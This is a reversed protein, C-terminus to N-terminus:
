SRSRAKTPRSSPPTRSCTGSWRSCARRTAPSSTARRTCRWASASGSPRSTAPASTPPATCSRTCTPRRRPEDRAQRELHPHRRAPRRDADARRAREQPDARRTGRLSGPLEANRELSHLAMVVPTLPTRLEHSLIALFRDKAHSAAEAEARAKRNDVLAQVLEARSTELAQEAARAQTQDRFIKLLGIPHTGDADRMAMMVGSGWFRTGNKRRHWREDAARGDTLAQAAERQPAGALRDEDIFIIDASEGMVEDAVYGLLGEAGANWGTIRRKLDLTLIAYERANDLILRLREESERLAQETQRRDSVDFVIAIAATPRDRADLVATVSASVWVVSGDGRVYRKEMEFPAGDAALRRFAEINRAQDDPHVLAFASTGVLAEPTRGAILAFRANALTIRGDLDLHAVGAAAQTVITRFLAESERLAESVRRRETIDVFTLVVGGIRDDGHPLAAPARAALPRRRCRVEREIPVLPELVRRPTPTSSRTTSATARPRSLPRGVDAPILNFLEVASPTFRTIRLERDLFVTAIATAAM